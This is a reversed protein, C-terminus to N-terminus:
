GLFDHFLERKIHASNKLFNACFVQDPECFELFKGEYGMSDTSPPSAIRPRLLLIVDIDESPVFMMLIGYKTFAFESVLGKGHIFVIIEHTSGFNVGFGLM